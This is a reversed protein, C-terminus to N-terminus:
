PKEFVTFTWDGYVQYALTVVSYDDDNLRYYAGWENAKAEDGKIEDWDSRKSLKKSTEDLMGAMDTFGIAGDVPDMSSNTGYKAWDDAAKRVLDNIIDFEGATLRLEDPKGKPSGRGVYNLYTQNLQDARKEYDNTYGLIDLTGSESQGWAKWTSWSPHTIQEYSLKNLLAWTKYITLWTPNEGGNSEFVMLMILVRIEHETLGKPASQHYAGQQGTTEEGNEYCNGEEDCIAHGSPDSYRIPNNLM